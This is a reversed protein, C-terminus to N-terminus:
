KRIRKVRKRRLSVLFLILMLALVKYFLTSKIKCFNESFNLHFQAIELEIAFCTKDEQLLVTETKSISEHIDDDKLSLEKLLENLVKLKKNLIINEDVM